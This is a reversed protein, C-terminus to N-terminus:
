RVNIEGNVYPRILERMAHKDTDGFEGSRAFLSVTGNDEYLLVAGGRTELLGELKAAQLEELFSLMVFRHGPAEDMPLSRIFTEGNFRIMVIPGSEGTISIRPLADESPPLGPEIERGNLATSAWYVGEPLSYSKWIKEQLTLEPRLQTPPLKPGAAGAERAASREDPETDLGASPM